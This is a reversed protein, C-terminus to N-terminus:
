LPWNCLPCRFGDESVVEKNCTSCHVAPRNRVEEERQVREARIRNLHAQNQVALYALTKSSFLLYFISLACGVYVVLGLALTAYSKSVNVATLLGYSFFGIAGLCSAVVLFRAVPSGQLLSRSIFVAFVTSIILSFHFSENLAALILPTAGLIVFFGAISFAILQGVSHSSDNAAFAAPDGDVGPVPLSETSNDSTAPEYPNNMAIASWISSRWHDGIDGSVV